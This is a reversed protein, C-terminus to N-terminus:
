LQHAFRKIAEKVVLHRRTSVPISEGTLLIIREGTFASVFSLNVLFSEHCHVFSDPLAREFQSITAYTDLTRLAHVHCVRLASEVYRIENPSVLYTVGESRICVPRYLWEDIDLVAGLVVRELDEHEYPLTLCYSCRGSVQPSSGDTCVAIIRVGGSAISDRELLGPSTNKGDFLFLLGFGDKFFTDPIDDPDRFTLTEFVISTAM